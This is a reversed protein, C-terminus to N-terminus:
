KIEGWRTGFSVSVEIPVRLKTVGEMTEKVMKSIEEELGEKVELVLEDHVQLIMRVDNTIKLRLDKIKESVEIMAMKMLDAATGQIPMNIAM